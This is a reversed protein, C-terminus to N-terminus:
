VRDPSKRNMSTFVGVVCIGAFIAFALRMTGTIVPVPAAAIEAAGFRARVLITIVAMSCVMGLNRTMSLFANTLGHDAPPTMSMVATTNPTAFLGFGFGIVALVAVILVVPTTPSLFAFVVLSAACLAMGASALKFPSRRDALRGAWPSVVAQVVPSTILVLGSRDAGLGKVQQLYIALLYSIAFTAAYSLLASLNSLLFNPGARWLGPSLLPTSTRREHRIFLALLIAGATLAALALPAPLETLGYTVLLAAATVLAMGPLDLRDRLSGPPGGPGASRTVGADRPLQTTAFAVLVLGVVAIVHFISRWGLHHTLFGGAVPGVSLGVYVAATSWGIARGRREPPVAAVLIAQASAFLCSAGLGQVVRAAILSRLGPAWAAAEAVAALIALGTLYIVRRNTLDAFRGLPLLLAVTCMNYATVIWGLDAAASHFDAGITPISVNMASGTFSNLFQCCVIVVVTLNRDRSPTM